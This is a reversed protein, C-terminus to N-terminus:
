SKVEAQSHSLWEILDTRNIRTVKQNIMTGKLQGQYVANRLMDPSIFLLEAAEKLTYSPLELLRGYTRHVELPEIINRTHDLEKAFQTIAASAADLPIRATNIVLNYLDPNCWEANYYHRVYEARQKDVEEIQKAAENRGLQKLYTLREIRSELPARILVNTVGVWGKLVLNAARGVIVAYGHEAVERIFEEALSHFGQIAALQRDEQAKPPMELSYGGFANRDPVLVQSLPIDRPPTVLKRLEEVRPYVKEEYQALEVETLGLQQAAKAMIEKDVYTLKLRHAVNQAIEDGGSGEERSITIIM